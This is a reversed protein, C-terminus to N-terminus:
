EPLRSLHKDTRNIKEFSAKLKILIKRNHKKTETDNIKAQIM